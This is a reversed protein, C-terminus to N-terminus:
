APGSNAVAAAGELNKLRWDQAERFARLLKITQNDLATQYRSFVALQEEPLVLRCRRLLKAQQLMPPRKEAEDLQKRCWACLDLVFDALGNKFQAVYSEPTEQDAAADQELQTMVLPASKRLAAFSIEDLADIEEIVAECWSRQQEDFPKLADATISERVHFGQLSKLDKLIAEDRRQLAIGPKSIPQRPFTYAACM